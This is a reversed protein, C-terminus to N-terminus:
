LTTYPQILGSNLGSIYLTLAWTALVQTGANRAISTTRLEKKRWTGSILRVPPDKYRFGQIMETETENQINQEM